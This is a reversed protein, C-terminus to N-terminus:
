WYKIGMREGTVSLKGEQILPFSLITMSIKEHGFRLSLIYWGSAYGISSSRDVNIKLDSTPGYQSM